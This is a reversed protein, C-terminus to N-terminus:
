WIEQPNLLYKQVRCAGNLFALRFIKNLFWHDAYHLINRLSNAKDRCGQGWWGNKMYM